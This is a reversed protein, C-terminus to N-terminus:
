GGEKAFRKRIANEIAALQTEVSADAIGAETEIMCAAGTLRADEQLDIEDLLPYNKLIEDMRERVVPLMDPAVKLTIHRQNRVVANMVKHVIQVVLERDGIEAVCKRLSKMVVDIMKDEVSEMFAASAEQLELQRASIAAKGDELGKAYGRQREEEFAAQAEQRIRAAEAEAAAIVEEARRVAAVDAAKVLRVPTLLEFDNKKLLLM